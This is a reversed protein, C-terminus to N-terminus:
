GAKDTADHMESMVHRMRNFATALNDRSTAFSLRIHGEGRSGFSDGPVVAIKAGDLLKLAFEASHLGYRSIDPFAYFTGEPKTCEIGAIEKLEDVVLDRRRSYEAVMEELAKETLPDRMALATARQAFTCAGTVMHGHIAVVREAIGPPAALYGLRWGTMAYAKSFGNVTLTFDEMGPLSAISVHEKSEFIIKEYLEDSLVLFEKHKALDAIGELDNRNIVGGTPNNPTNIILMKTRKSIARELLEASIGFGNSIDAPLYVPRGGALLICPVYSVWCPDSVIVEDGPEITAMMVAYIAEKGGVTVVIGRSPDAEIGNDCRLKEAIADRLEILGASDPYFTYGEDLARKAYMRIHEPTVFDPEGASLSIVDQGARRLEKVRDLLQITASGPIATKKALFDM